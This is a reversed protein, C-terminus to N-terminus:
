NDLVPLIWEVGVSIPIEGTYRSSNSCCFSKSFMNSITSSRLLSSASAFVRLSVAAFKRWYESVDYILLILVFDCLGYPVNRLLAMVVTLPMNDDSLFTSLFFGGDRYAKDLVPLLSSLNAAATFLVFSPSDGLVITLISALLPSSAAPVRPTSPDM